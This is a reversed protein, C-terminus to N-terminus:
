MKVRPDLAAQIVDALLFILVYTTAAVLVFAQIVPYDRVQMGRLAWQGLGQWSFVYEILVSGGLLNGFVIASLAPLRTLTQRMLYRQRLVRPALGHAAACRYNDSALVELASARVSRLLPATVTIALTAVPLMLHHLASLFAKGNGAILTDILIFGTHTPVALNMDVRGSPPPAVHLGQYFLLILMLGLWFEPVSNGFLAAFRLVKDPLKHWHRAAAVGGIVALVLAVAMSYILLELTLPIRQALDASISRNTTISTGFDGTLAGGVYSLYQTLIPQDLGLRERAAAIDAETATEPVILLVPDGPLLRILFFAILSVGILVPILLLLRKLVYAAVRM